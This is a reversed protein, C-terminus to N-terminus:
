GEGGSFSSTVAIGAHIEAGDAVAAAIQVMAATYQPETEDVAPGFHPYPPQNYTRGLSDQGVFGYELRRGQPANTGVTGQWVGPAIQATQAGISRRYDGTQRRPGPRGSARARVRTRLLQTFRATQLGVFANVTGTAHRLEAAVEGANSRMRIENV